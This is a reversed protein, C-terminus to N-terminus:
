LGSITLGITFPRVDPAVGEKFLKNLQYSGYLNFPGRGFRATALFRYSNFFHKGTEKQIYDLLVGGNKNEWTKGKVHANLLAGIKVGLAFKYSSNPTEPNSSYRFEIPAELYATTLKYKKFHSTDELNKFQLTSSNDKIGVYMKDFYINDTGVGPGIALSLHPNTKFPFDFMFYMNFSRPLGKTRITDPRASWANYGIQIMFHDNARNSLNFDKKKPKAGTSDQAFLPFVFALALSLTILKKM